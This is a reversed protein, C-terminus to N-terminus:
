SSPSSHYSHWRTSEYDKAHFRHKTVIGSPDFFIVLKYDKNNTGRNIEGYIPIFNSMKPCYTSLEYIWKERGEFDEEVTYQTGFQAIIDQKHTRGDVIMQDVDYHTVNALEKTGKMSTCGVILAGALTLYAFSKKM